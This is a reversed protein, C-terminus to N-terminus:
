RTPHVADHSSGARLQGVCEVARPKKTQMNECFCSRVSLVDRLSAGEDGATVGALICFMSRTRWVNEGRMLTQESPNPCSM